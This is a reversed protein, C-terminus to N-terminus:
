NPAERALLTPRAGKIQWRWLWELPGQRFRRLWLWSLLMQALYVLVAFALLWALSWEAFLGLGFGYFVVVCIASQLLYNTLAMRGAPALAAQFARAVPGDHRWWLLLVSAYAVAMVPAATVDAIIFGWRELGPEPTLFEEALALSIALPVSTVALARLLTAHGSAPDALRIRAAAAGIMFLALVRVPRWTEIRNMVTAYSLELNARVVDAYSGGALHPVNESLLGATTDSWPWAFQHVFWAWRGAGTVLLLAAAWLLLTRPSRSLFPTLLLGVAAYLYLIDWPWLFVAHAVGVILLGTMRRLHNRAADPGAKGALMVFSYGFLLSFLSYFKGQAFIDIFLKLHGDIGSGPLAERADTGLYGWGSFLQINVLLIGLLAFGRLADLSQIRASRQSM